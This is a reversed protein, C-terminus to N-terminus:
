RRDKMLKHQEADPLLHIVEIVMDRLEEKAPNDASYALARRIRDRAKAEDKWEYEDFHASYYKLFNIDMQIGAIVDRLSFELMGIDWIMSKILKIKENSRQSDMKILQDVKHRKDELDSDIRPMNYRDDLGKENIEKILKELAFFDDKLKQELKPILLARELVDVERQIKRVDELVQLRRDMDESATELSESLQNLDKTIKSKQEAPINEGLERTIRESDSIYEELVDVTPVPKRPIDVSLDITHDILPFYASFSMREDRLVKVTIEVSSKEPIYSPVDDGTIRIKKILDNYIARTGESSFDGAYIPVEIFDERNGPRLPSATLLKGIQGTVPASKNKELNPIPELEDRELIDNHIEIGINFPLIAGQQSPKFGQLIVFSDPECELKNGLTDFLSVTFQNVTNEVLSLEVVEGTPTLNIRGTEWGERGIVLYINGPVVPTAEDTTIKVSLLEEPEVSTSEYKLDLQVKMKNRSPLVVSNPADITSAYLAAGLAVVTMPDISFDAKDTIQEKLMKRLLPTLTPGGVPILAVLEQPNINNRRLLDKTLDVAKQFYPAAIAEYDDRTITLDIDIPENDDDLLSEPRSVVLPLVASRKYSLEIKASEADPKWCNRFSLRKREDSLITEISYNHEFYPLLIQDVIAYDLDKGGLRNNGETDVVKMIGDSLKLLAADFTGGGLDFVVWYGDKIKSDLGYAMSAAVPEALLECYDLGALGAARITAAKQDPKFKAPVTIVTARIEEGVVFSLLKKLVEASLEESDYSKDMAASFYKVDTGMTRKFESFTDISRDPYKLANTWDVVLQNFANEGVITEQTAFGDKKKRLHFRVCSSMTDKQVDSKQIKPKGESIRAISSNTTGLDIGYILKNHGM